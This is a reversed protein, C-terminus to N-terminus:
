EHANLELNAAGARTSVSTDADLEIDAELLERFLRLFDMASEYDFYMEDAALSLVLQDNYYHGALAVRTHDQRPAYGAPLFVTLDGCIHNGDADRPRGRPMVREIDGLYSLTATTLCRSARRKRKYRTFNRRLRAMAWEFSLLDVFGVGLDQELIARTERAIGSLLAARDACDRPSRDLTAFGICNASPMRAHRKDRTNTPIMIRLNDTPQSSGHRENWAVITRFYNALMYDNFTVGRADALARLKTFVASPIIDGAMEGLPWAAKARHSPIALPTVPRKSKRLMLLAARLRELKSRKPAISGRLKLAELEPDSWKGVDTGAPSRLRAYEQMVDAWLRSTGIGDSVAHHYRLWLCSRGDALPKKWIRLGPGDSLEFDDNWCSPASQPEWFLPIKAPDDLVWQPVGGRPWDLRCRFLPNLELGRRLAREFSPRHVEGGVVISSDNLMPDGPWSSQVMYTEFATLPLPFINTM